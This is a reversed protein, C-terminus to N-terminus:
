FALKALVSVAIAGVVLAVFFYVYWLLTTGRGAACEPCIMMTVKWNDVDGVRDYRYDQVAEKGSFDRGCQDCIM